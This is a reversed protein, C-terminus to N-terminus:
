SVDDDFEVLIVFCGADPEADLAPEPGIAPRRQRQWRGGCTMGPPAPM